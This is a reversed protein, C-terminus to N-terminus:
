ALQRRALAAFMGDEDAILTAYTGQQVVKGADMVLIRDAHRITSLRHAIVIRTTRLRRTSEAVTEQAPNDLSSTAEDMILVRPRSVLARAIMLRQRQGGSLTSAGEALVTFMKMPMAEIDKDFGSMRAAEWADDVSYAGTGIINTRIDGALLAGNQLVVGCQRRVALIDLQSLDQGDFLVAGSTPQEFGLLLRVLTSKGCGTPGVVAVFEGPKIEVSVDDLVLPGDEAYAFDVHRLEIHGSLEGPDSMQAHIEREERFVPALGEMMPIVALITSAVGTFQLVAASLLTFAAFFSLFAATSHELLSGALWFIVLTGVLTFGANFTTVRNQIKRARMTVSRSRAFDTAWVAFARDEAAAIRLKSLGTLLQFVRAALAKEHDYIERQLRVQRAGTFWCVAFAVAILGTGALALPVSYFYLLLLNLLGTVLALLSSVGIGSIVDRPHSVALAITALEGTPYRSFFRLPLALLRDWVAAQVTGDIRGELRLMTLNQVSAFVGSVLAAAVVALCSGWIMRRDASPVYDGLVRGTLIPVLLGLAGVMLASFALAIVDGRAGTLGFRLLSGTSRVTEPVPPYVTTAASTLEAAVEATVRRPSPNAPDVVEYGRRTPLLAVPLNDTRYGVLPGYDETWWTGVLRLKRTRLGSSMAIADIATVARGARQRAPTLSVGLRDAVLRMAFMAPDTATAVPMAAAGDVVADLTAVARRVLDRDQATRRSLLDAALARRQEVLRDAVGLVKGMHAHVAAWLTGDEIMEATEVTTVESKVDAVVWDAGTVFMPVGASERAPPTGGDSGPSIAGDLVRIWATTDITRAAAGAGLDTVDGPTIAVFDRPPLGTRTGDTLAALGRELGRVVEDKLTEADGSQTVAHQLRAFPLRYLTAGPLPRGLLSHRADSPAGIILSGAEARGLYTWRGSTSSESGM